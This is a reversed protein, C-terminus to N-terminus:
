LHYGTARFCFPIVQKYVRRMVGQRVLEKGPPVKLPSFFFAFNLLQKETIGNCHLLLRFFALKERLAEEAKHKLLARFVSREIRGFETREFPVVTAARTDGNSLLALEGFSAMKGVTAVRIGHLETLEEETQAVPVQHMPPETLSLSKKSLRRLVKSSGQKVAEDVDKIENTTNPRGGPFLHIACSGELIVFFHNGPDGQLFLPRFKEGVVLEMGKALDFVVDDINPMNNFKCGLLWRAIRGIQDPTRDSRDTMLAQRVEETQLDAM